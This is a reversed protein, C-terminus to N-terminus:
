EYRLAVMPDVRSARFAPVYCSALTVALLTLPVIVYTASNPTGLGVLGATLLKAVAISILGGVVIGAIALTLGQRLVMKLVDMRSAGIAMRVGIERTRQAVSYAVLGYLGILALTLGAAGMSAIMQMIMRTISIARLQYFNEMTRVNFIPQNADLTRVVERLPGIAGSADGSTEAFLVMSKRPNQAFPFYVFATPSEAVYLYKGTKALGVVQMWQDKKDEMRLRKGIPDQNPWYKKAFQENVIAVLPAGEKDNATFARGRLLPVQMVDFYNEDVTSTFLSVSQQGKPFEYGEPVLNQTDQAPAMPIVSSLSVARIDSIGRAREVLDRYFDHAKADSYRVLSTDFQMMVLHDTRFGPNMVLTKRFGDILMGTAILLVMSMAVQAIVLLNRGTLRQKITFGTEANKLAPVLDPKSARLAPTLGFVLASVVASILSVLLVRGDLQPTISIPLDSPIRITQLFRIGGYAFALGVLAGLIALIFSEVLLQRVLRARGVGLALRIAIERSRGKARGLLLNAVNACAIVLVVAVLSMLLTILYADPPDFAVRIQLETRVAVNRVKDADSHLPALGKWINQLEAQAQERTIGPKLRAKVEFNLASRDETLDKPSGTLRQILTAPIYVSPRVYQDVGPFSEATVGVINFDIGNIRVTRGLIAPDSSFESRWFDDSILTVPNRASLDQQTFARGLAPQVDLIQFFNDSVALGARLHPNETASKAISLTVNHFVGMGEFSRSHARFDLYDPYSTGGVDDPKDTSVTVVASPQPVPMPRLLLADALSFIASNLGIGLALSLTAVVTFGPNRLLTRLAYRIEELM